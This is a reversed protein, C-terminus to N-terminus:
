LDTKLNSLFLTAQLHGKELLQQRSEENKLSELWKSLDDLDNVLCRVTNKIEKQQREGDLTAQMKKMIMLIFDIMSSKETITNNPINWINKFALIEDVECNTQDICDNLPFNSLLGGDIYCSGENFIPQFIIPFAMTMSLATILSLNPHTKYSLDVKQLVESNINTTVLHVEIQNFDYLESLTITDKLDKAKLLPSIADVFFQEGFLCKKELVDVLSVAASAAVKDWPRKVFYDDLWDWEYGLSLVVGMYAGISCGYITKIDSLQWFGAKALFAAAGYTIIGTPGGGSFVLHKIPM